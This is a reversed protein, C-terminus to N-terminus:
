NPLGPIGYPQLGEGLYLRCKEVLTKQPLVEVCYSLGVLRVHITFQVLSGVVALLTTVISYFM